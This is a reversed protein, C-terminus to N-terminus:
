QQIVEVDVPMGAKFIHGPNTIRVEVRYVLSTRGERTEVQSPTFEARDAIHTITGTVTESGDTSVTVVGGTGTNALYPQSIYFIVKVTDLDAVTLLTM